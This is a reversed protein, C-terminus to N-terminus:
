READEGAIVGGTQIEETNTTVEVLSELLTVSPDGGIVNAAGL